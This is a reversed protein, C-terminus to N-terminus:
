AAMCFSFTAAGHAQQADIDAGTAAFGGHEGFGAHQEAQCIFFVIVLVRLWSQASSSVGWTQSWILRVMWFVAM